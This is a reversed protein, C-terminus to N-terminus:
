LEKAESPNKTANESKGSRKTVASNAATNRKSGEDKNSKERQYRRLELSCVCVDAVIPSQSQNIEDM